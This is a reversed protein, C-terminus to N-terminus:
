HQLSQFIDREVNNKILRKASRLFGGDECIETLKKGLTHILAAFGAENAISNNLTQPYLKVFLSDLTEQDLEIGEYFYNYARFIRSGGSRWTLKLGRPLSRAEWHVLFVAFPIYQMSYGFLRGQQIEIKGLTTQSERAHKIYILIETNESQCLNAYTGDESGEALSPLAVAFTLGLTLLLVM